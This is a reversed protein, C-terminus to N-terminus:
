DRSYIRLGERVVFFLKRYKIDKIFSFIIWSVTDFCMMIIRGVVFKDDIEKYREFVIVIFM